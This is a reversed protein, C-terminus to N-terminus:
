DQQMDGLLGKYFESNLSKINSPDTNCQITAPPVLLSGLREIILGRMDNMRKLQDKDDILNNTEYPDEKMNFLMDGHTGFVYKWDQTRALRWAKSGPCLHGLESYAWKRHSDKEGRAYQLMSLGPSGPMAEQLHEDSGAELLTAPIDVAEGMDQLITGGPRKSNPDYIVTPTRASADYPKFKFFLHHDGMMDGHDSTFIIITNDFLGKNEVAELFKGMCYDTFEILGCYSARQKQWFDIEEPDDVGVPPPMDAPKYRSFFPEPPDLPFHPGFFSAHLFFPKESSYSDIWRVMERCLFNDFHDEIDIVSSSHFNKGGLRHDRSRTDEVLKEYIGRSKLYDTYRCNKEGKQALISRGCCEFVDDFGREKTHIELDKLHNQSLTPGCHSHLKGILSTHYGARQLAHAFTPHGLPWDKGNRPGSPSQSAYLGTLWTFRTPMCVPCNSISNPLTVGKQKLSDITPTNLGDILGGSYFDWRHEDDTLLIINPKTTSNKNSM